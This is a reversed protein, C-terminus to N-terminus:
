LNSQNSAIIPDLGVPIQFLAMAMDWGKITRDKLASAQHKSKLSFDIARVWASYGKPTQLPIARTVITTMQAWKFAWKMLTYLAHGIM